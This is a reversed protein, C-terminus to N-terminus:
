VPTNIDTTEENTIDKMKQFDPLAREMARSVIAKQIESLNDDKITGGEVEEKIIMMAKIDGDVLAKAILAMALADDIRMKEPEGDLNKYDIVIDMLATLKAKLSQRGIPRGAPNGTQGKQWPPCLNSANAM